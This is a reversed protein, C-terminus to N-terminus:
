DLRGCASREQKNQSNKRTEEYPITLWGQLKETMPKKLVHKKSSWNFTLNSRKSTEEDKRRPFFILRRINFPVASQYGRM